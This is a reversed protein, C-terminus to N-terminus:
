GEEAADTAVSVREATGTLLPSAAGEPAAEDMEHLVGIAALGPQLGM